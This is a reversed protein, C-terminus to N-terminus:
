PLPNLRFSLTMNTITDGFNVTKYPIIYPFLILFSNKSSCRRILYHIIPYCKLFCRKRLKNRYDYRMLWLLQSQYRPHYSSNLYTLSRNFKGISSSISVQNPPASVISLCKSLMSSYLKVQRTNRLDIRM